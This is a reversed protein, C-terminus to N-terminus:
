PAPSLFLFGCGWELFRGEQHHISEIPCSWPGFFSWISWEWDYPWPAPLTYLVWSSGKWGQAVFVEVPGKAGVDDLGTSPRKHWVFWLRLRFSNITNAFFDICSLAIKGIEKTLTRILCDFAIKKIKNCGRMADECSFALAKRTPDYCKSM